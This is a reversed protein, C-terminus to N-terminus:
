RKDILRASNVYDDFGNGNRFKIGQKIGVFISIIPIAIVSLGVLIILLLVFNLM